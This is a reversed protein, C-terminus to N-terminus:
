EHLRAIGTRKGHDPNGSEYAKKGNKATEARLASAVTEGPLLLQDVAAACNPCHELHLALGEIEEASRQGQAFSELDRPPPCSSLTRM